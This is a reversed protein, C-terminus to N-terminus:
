YGLPSSIASNDTAPNTGSGALPQTGLPSSDTAAVRDATPTGPSAASVGPLYAGWGLRDALAIGSSM